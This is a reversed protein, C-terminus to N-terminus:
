EQRSSRTKIDYLKLYKNNSVSQTTITLNNDSNNTGKFNKVFKSFFHSKSGDNKKNSTKKYGETFGFETYLNSNKFAQHYEGMFLPNEALYFTNTLTFNKDKSLAFIFFLYVRM